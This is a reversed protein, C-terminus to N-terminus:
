RRPKKLQTIRAIVDAQRSQYEPRQRTLRIFQQYREIAGAKQNLYYDYFRAANLRIVPHEPALKEAQAFATQAAPYQQRRALAIGLANYLAPDQDHGLGKLVNLFKEAGPDGTEVALNCLLTILDPDQPRLRYASILLKKAENRRAPIGCYLRGLTYKAAFSQDNLLGARRAADIAQDTEGCKEAALALMLLVRINQPYSKELRQAQHYADRWNGAEAAEKAHSLAAEPTRDSCGSIMTGVLIAMMWFKM